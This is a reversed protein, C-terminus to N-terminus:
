LNHAKNFGKCIDIQEKKGDVNKRDITSVVVLQIGAEKSIRKLLEFVKPYSNLDEDFPQNIGDIVLLRMFPLEKFNDNLIKLNALCALIQWTTARAMSGPNYVHKEGLDDKTHKGILYTQIPNFEICFGTKEFDEKAFSVTEKLESYWSLLIENFSKTLNDDFLKTLEKIQKQTEDLENKIKDYENIYELNKLNGFLHELVSLINMTKEYSTKNMGNSISQIKKDISEKKEKIAKITKAYDKISLVDIDSKNKDILYEIRDMYKKWHADNRVVEQLASLMLQAKENRYILKQSQTELNIQYKLEESLAYSAKILQNLDNMKIDKPEIRSFRNKYDIFRNYLESIKGGCDLNLEIFYNKIEKRIYKYKIMADNYYNLKTILNKEKIRLEFIKHVNKYNYLFTMIKRVRRQHEYDKARSFISSLNGLGKEDIYNFFTFGRFSLNEDNLLSFEELYKKNGKNIFTSIIQKYLNEDASLYEDDKFYKYYYENCTRKLFLSDMSDALELEVSVINDLGEKEILSCNSKGLCFDLTYVMASKGTNNKGYIYTVDDFDYNSSEINKSYNLRLNVIKFM